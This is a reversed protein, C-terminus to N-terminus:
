KSDTVTVNCDGSPDLEIDAYDGNFTHDSWSAVADNLDAGEDARIIVDVTVTAYVKRM